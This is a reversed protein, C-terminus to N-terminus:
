GTATQSSRRNGQAGPAHGSNQIDQVQNSTIIGGIITTQWNDNSAILAGNANHLEMTPDAM